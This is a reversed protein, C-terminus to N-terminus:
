KPTPIALAADLSPNFYTMKIFSKLKDLRFGYIYPSTIDKDGGKLLAVLNGDKDLIPAGSCGEFERHSRIPRGLDFRILQNDMDIFKIGTVIKEEFSYNGETSIDTKIRGAFSYRANKKIQNVRGLDIVNKYGADIYLTSGDQMSITSEEQLLNLEQMEAFAVDLPKTTEVNGLVKELGDATLEELKLQKLFSLEEPQVTMAIAGDREGTLIAARNKNEDINHEVTCFFFRDGFSIMVGSATGIIRTRSRDQLIVNLCSKLALVICKREKKTM